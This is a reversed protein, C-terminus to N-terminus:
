SLPETGPGAGEAAPLHARLLLRAVAETDCLDVGAGQVDAAAPHAAAEAWADAFRPYEKKLAMLNQGTVLEPFEILVDYPGPRSMVKSLIAILDLLFLTGFIISFQFLAAMWKYQQVLQDMGDSGAEAVFIVKFLGITEEMPDFRGEAKAHYSRIVPEFRLKHSNRNEAQEAEAKKVAQALKDIRAKREEAETIFAARKDADLVALAAKKEAGAPQAAAANKLLQEYRQRATQETQALVQLDRSLEKFKAGQGQKGTGGRDSALKGRAEEKLDQEVERIRVSVQKWDALAAAAAQELEHRRAQEGDDQHRIEQRALEEAYLKPDAPGGAREQELKVQLEKLLATDRTEIVEREAREKSRLDDLRQRYEGQLRERIAGQYQELCFPFAIAVSIVAALGIRFCVQVAKRHWPQFPRYTAMLIRDVNMVVFAWAVAVILTVIPRSTEFRSSAYLYMGFFALLTPILVSSGLVAVRERESEPLHALTARRAGALWYLLSLLRERIPLGGTGRAAMRQKLYELFNKWNM